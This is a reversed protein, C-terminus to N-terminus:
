SVQILQLATAYRGVAEDLCGRLMGCAGLACHLDAVIDREDDYERVVVSEVAPSGGASLPHALFDQRLTIRLSRYIHHISPIIALSLNNPLVDSHYM